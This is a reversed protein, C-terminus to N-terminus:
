SPPAAVQQPPLPFGVSFDDAAAVYINLNLANFCLLSFGPYLDNYRNLNTYYHAFYYYPITFELVPRIKTFWYYQGSSGDNFETSDDDLYVQCVTDVPAVTYNQMIKFRIGGRFYYFNQIINTFINNSIVNSSFLDRLNFNMSSGSTLTVTKWLTPRKLLSTWELVHEGMNSNDVIKITSKSIPEFSQLFLKRMDLSSGSQASLVPYPSMNWLALNNIPRAFIMDEGGAIWTNCYVTSDSTSNSNSVANLIMISLNGISWSSPDVGYQVMQSWPQASLYPVYITAIGDGTFDYVKNFYDSVQTFDISGADSPDPRYVMVVRYSTVKNATFQFCFKFGGRWYKFHQAVQSLYTPQFVTRMSPTTGTTYTSVSNPHLVYYGVITGPTQSSDFTFTNILTPINIYNKFKNYDIETAYLSADDAVNNEPDMSLIQGNDLGCVNALNTSSEILVRDTVSLNQPISLGLFEAGKSFVNIIKSAESAVEGVFPLVKFKAATRSINGLTKSVVGSKSRSKSEEIKGSQTHIM